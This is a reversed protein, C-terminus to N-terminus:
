EHICFHYNQENAAKYYLYAQLLPNAMQSTCYDGQVVCSLPFFFHPPQHCPLNVFMGVQGTAVVNPFKPHQNITLCLIDDSHEVYFSQCATLFCVWGGCVCVCVSVSFVFVYINYKSEPLFYNCLWLNERVASQRSVPRWTSCSASQPQTTSSTRGRTWTTCMTAATMAVTVLCWSWCWTRRSLWFSIALFDSLDIGHCSLHESGAAPQLLM